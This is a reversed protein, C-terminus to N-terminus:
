RRAKVPAGKVWILGPWARMTPSPRLGTLRVSAGNTKSIRWKNTPPRTAASAGSTGGPWRRKLRQREHRGFILVQSSIVESRRPTDPPRAATHNWEGHFDHRTIPLADVDKRAYRLGTPYRGTDLIRHVTLGTTTATNSILDVIVQHTTLPRGRWNLTIQSFLRHEIRNCKSTGPPLHCVTVQPGTEAAFAALKIKWARTRNGNSGGSDACILLQRAAPYRQAGTTDWWSRLTAVAFASTDHGISVWGANAAVDYIGYPIAKSLDKDMFDHVNVAVPSGKPQYERGGNKFEGALEKKKGPRRRGDVPSYACTSRRDTLGSAAADRFRM